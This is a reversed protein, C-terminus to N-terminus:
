SPVLLILVHQIGRLGGAPPEGLSSRPKTISLRRMGAGQDQRKHSDPDQYAEPMFRICRDAVSTFTAAQQAATVLM